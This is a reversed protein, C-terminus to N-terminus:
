YSNIKVKSEDTHKFNGKRSSPKNNKSAHMWINDGNDKGVYRPENNRSPNYFIYTYYLNPINKQSM